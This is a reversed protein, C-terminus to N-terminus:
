LDDWQWGLEIELSTLHKSGKVARVQIAVCCNYSLRKLEENGKQIEDGWQKQVIGVSRRLM